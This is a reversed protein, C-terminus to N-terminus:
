KGIWELWQQELEDYKVTLATEIAAKLSEAPGLANLLKIVGANGYQQEVFAILADVEGDVLDSLDNSVVYPSPWIWLQSLPPIRKDALLDRYFQQTEAFDGQSPGPFLQGPESIFIREPPAARSAAIRLQQWALIGQLFLEGGHNTSWRAADGTALRAIPELLVKYALDTYADARDGYPEFLGILRPSPLTLTLGGGTKLTPPLSNPQFNLAFSFARDIRPQCNLDRCLVEYIREFRETVRYAWRNDEAPFSIEFHATYGRSQRGSWFAPDPRARKWENNRLRYFRTELVYVEVNRWQVVEVWARESAYMKQANIEYLGDGPPQGWAKFGAAQARYWEGDIQDQVAMFDTRDGDALARVERAVVPELPPPPPYTPEPTSPPPKLPAPISFYLAGLGAGLMISLAVLLRRWRSPKSRTNQVMTEREADEGIHWEIDPSM